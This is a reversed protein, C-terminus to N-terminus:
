RSSVAIQTAIDDGCRHAILRMVCDADDGKLGIGV